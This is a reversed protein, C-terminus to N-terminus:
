DVQEVLYVLALIEAQEAVELEELVEAQDVLGVVQDVLGVVGQFHLPAEVM